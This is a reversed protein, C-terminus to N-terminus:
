DIFTHSNSGIKFEKLEKNNILPKMLVKIGEPGLRNDLYFLVFSFEILLLFNNIFLLYMKNIVFVSIFVKFFSFNGYLNIIKYSENLDNVVANVDSDCIYSGVFTIILFM